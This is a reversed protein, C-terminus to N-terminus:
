RRAARVGSAAVPRSLWPGTGSRRSRNGHGTASRPAAGRRGRPGLLSGHDPVRRRARLGRTRLREDRVRVAHRREAPREIVDAHQAQQEPGRGPGSVVAPAACSAARSAAPSSAQCSRARRRRRPPRSRRDPPARAPGSDDGGGALPRQNRVHQQGGVRRGRPTPAPPRRHTRAPAAPASPARPSFGPQSACPSTLGAPPRDPGPPDAGDCGLDARRRRRVHRHPDASRTAAAGGRM